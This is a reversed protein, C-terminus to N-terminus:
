NRAPAAVARVESLRDGAQLAIRDSGAIQSLNIHRVEALELRRGRRLLLRSGAISCPHPRPDEQSSSKDLSM